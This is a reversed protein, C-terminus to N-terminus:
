LRKIPEPIPNISWYYWTNKVIWRNKIMKTEEVKDMDTSSINIPSLAQQRPRSLPISEQHFPNKPRLLFMAPKIFLEQLEKRIKIERNKFERSDKQLKLLSNKIKLM